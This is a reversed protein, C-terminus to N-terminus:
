QRSDTMKKKMTTFGDPQINGGCIKSITLTLIRTKPLTVNGNTWYHHPYHGPNAQITRHTIWAM